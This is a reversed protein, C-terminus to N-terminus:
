TIELIRKKESFSGIASVFGVFIANSLLSSGGYSVFPLTIGVIPLIGINMGINVFFQILLLSFSALTFIRGFTSNTTKAITFFRYLLFCFAIVVITSGIFGLEESLTAFIFDTQREPLFRLASQTGQGLGKGLFMGSGVAIVSQIANYSIGLPDNTIHFFTLLREKQYQHLFRWTLPITVLLVILGGFFWQWPFGILICTLIVTSFYIIANGLDPQRYILFVIPLLYLVTLFFHKVSTRNKKNLFSAFSIALFPKLIESFQIRFGFIDIWRIAGRSEFGILLVVLLLLLSVIYISVGYLEIEKYDIQSCIIFIAAAFIAFLLQNRFFEINISFLTTLSVLLLILCPMALKWDIKLKM